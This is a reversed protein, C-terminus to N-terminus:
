RSPQPGCCFPRVDDICAADALLMILRDVGLAIGGTAPMGEELARLFPEDLGYVSQGRAQRLCACAEFRSRQEAPDILESFANAIEMGGMFLEWREAVAPDDPKRRAMAAAEAPYDMFVTPRIRSFSPEIREVLERDFREADYAAVPDWGAVRKFVDRAAVQEWDQALDMTDGHFKLTTTGLTERAVASLLARTDALIDRYDAGARYWELLTFEPNHLAGREGRRFCPGLQFIREHGAALLRKMHLEPSTRLFQEGAPEADIHLELAPTPIRVPTEVETFGREIFFRRISFVAVSRLQLAPRLRSLERRGTM